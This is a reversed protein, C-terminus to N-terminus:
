MEVPNKKRLQSPLVIEFFEQRVDNHQRRADDVLFEVKEDNEKFFTNSLSQSTNILSDDAGGYQSVSLKELEQTQDEPHTKEIKLDFLEILENLM